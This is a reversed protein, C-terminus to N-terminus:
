ESTIGKIQSSGSAALPDYGRMVAMLNSSLARLDCGRYSIAWAMKMVSNPWLYPWALKQSGFHTWQLSFEPRSALIHSQSGFYSEM